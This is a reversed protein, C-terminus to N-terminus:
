LPRTPCLQCEHPLPQVAFSAPRHGCLACHPPLPQSKPTPRGGVSRSASVGALNSKPAVRGREGPGGSPPGSIRFGFDPARSWCSKTETPKRVNGYNQRRSVGARSNRGPGPGGHRPRRGGAGAPPSGRARLGIRRTQSQKFGAPQPLNHSPVRGPNPPPVSQFPANRSPFPSM